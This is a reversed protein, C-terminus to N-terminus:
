SRWGTVPSSATGYCDPIGLTVAVYIAQSTRFGNVLEMLRQIHHDAHATAKTV